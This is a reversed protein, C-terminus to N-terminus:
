FLTPQSIITSIPKFTLRHIPCPGFKEIAQIHAKTGYGMHKEFGYEPYKDAMEEMILDRTEKALISAAAVSASISEGKVFAQHPIGLGVLWPLKIQDLLIYDPAPSLKKYAEFFALRTAELINIKDITQSDIIGVGYTIAYKKIEAFLERRKKRSLKKSDDIGEIRYDKPLVVMAASVPGALPGRGAEDGGAIVKFGQIALETEYKYNDM